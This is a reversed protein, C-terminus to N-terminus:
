PKRETAARDQPREGVDVPKEGFDLSCFPGGQFKVAPDEPDGAPQGAFREAFTESDDQPRYSVGSKSNDWWSRQNDSNGYVM